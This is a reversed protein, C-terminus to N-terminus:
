LYRHIHKLVKKMYKVIWAELYRNKRRLETQETQCDKLMKIM